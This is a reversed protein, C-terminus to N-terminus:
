VGGPMSVGTGKSVDAGACWVHVGQCGLVILLVSSGPLDEAARAWACAGRSMVVAACFQPPTSVRLM